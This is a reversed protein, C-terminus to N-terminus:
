AGQNFGQIVLKSSSLEKISIGWQNMTSKPLINVVLGNDILIRSPKQEYIYGSMLLPTNHLKSELLLDEDNFSISIGFSDCAKTQSASITSVDDNKIDRYNTDKM